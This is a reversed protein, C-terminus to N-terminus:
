DAMQVYRKRYHSPSMGEESTFRRTFYAANEFGVQEAIHSIPWDTRILLLKAQELRYRLLYEMPTMGYVQKMCRTIYNHHFHLAESLRKNTIESRYHNKLYRETQEAVAVVSSRQVTLRRMDLMQLLQLFTTQQHWFASAQPESSAQLLEDLLAYVSDPDPVQRYKAIQCVYPTAYRMERELGPFDLAETELWNSSTQLHLWYFRTESDCAQFSYHWADPRLLLMQGSEVTWRLHEEGIYLAGEQVILLDFVGIRRRNPHHDGPQYLTKGCELLYPLPPAQFLVYPSQNLPRGKRKEIMGMMRDYNPSPHADTRVDNWQGTM